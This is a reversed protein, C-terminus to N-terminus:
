PYFSVGRYFCRSLSACIDENVDLALNSAPLMKAVRMAAAEVPATTACCFATGSKENFSTPQTPSLPPPGPKEGTGPRTGGTDLSGTCGKTGLPTPRCGVKRIASRLLGFRFGHTFACMFFSLSSTSAPFTANVARDFQMGAPTGPKMAKPPPLGTYKM